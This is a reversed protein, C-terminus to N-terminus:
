LPRVTYMVWLSGGEHAIWQQCKFPLGTFKVQGDFLSTVQYM